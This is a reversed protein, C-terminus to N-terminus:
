DEKLIFDAFEQNSCRTKLYEDKVWMPGRIYAGIIESLKRGDETETYNESMRKFVASMICDSAKAGDMILPFGDPHKRVYYLVQKVYRRMTEVSDNIIVDCEAIFRKEKDTKIM